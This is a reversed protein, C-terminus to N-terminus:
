RARTRHAAGDLALGRGELHRNVEASFSRRMSAVSEFVIDALLGLLLQVIMSTGNREPHVVGGSHRLMRSYHSVAIVSL